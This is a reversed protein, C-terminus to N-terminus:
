RPNWEEYHMRGLMAVFEEHEALKEVRVAL